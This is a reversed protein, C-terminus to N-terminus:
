NVLNANKIAKANANAWGNMTTFPENQIGGVLSVEIENVWNM